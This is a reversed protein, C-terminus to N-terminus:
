LAALGSARDRGASDQHLSLALPAVVERAALAAHHAAFPTISAASHLASRTVKAPDIVGGAITGVYEFTLTNLAPRPPLERVGAVVSLADRGQEPVEGAAAIPKAQVRAYVDDRLSSHPHLTRAPVTEAVHQKVAAPAQTSM